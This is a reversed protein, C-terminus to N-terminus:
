AADRYFYSSFFVLTQPFQSSISNEVLSKEVQNSVNISPPAELFMVNNETRKLPIQSNVQFNIQPQSPKVYEATLMEGTLLQFAGPINLKGLLCREPEEVEEPNCPIASNLIAERVAETKPQEGRQLQLSM